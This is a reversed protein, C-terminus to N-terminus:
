VQMQPRKRPVGRLGVPKSFGAIVELASLPTVMTHFSACPWGAASCLVPASVQDSSMVSEDVPVGINRGNKECSPIAGLPGAIIEHWPPYSGHYSLLGEETSGFGNSTNRQTIPPKHSPLLPFLVGSGGHLHNSM